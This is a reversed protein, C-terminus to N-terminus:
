AANPKSGFTHHTRLWDWTELVTDDLTQTAVFGLEREAKVISYHKQRWMLNLVGASLRPRAIWKEILPAFRALVFAAVQLLWRSVKLRPPAVGMTRAMTQLLTQYSVNASALIYREGGRGRAMAVQLGHVLDARSLVAIGGPPVFPMDGRFVDLFVKGWGHDRDCYPAIVAGPCVTVVCLGLRGYKRVVAEAAYKSHMYSFPIERGNYPMTEDAIGDPYGIAAISSVYVVRKVDARLAAALLNETVQVNVQMMRARDTEYPVALGAAHYLLTVGQMANAVSREDLLDGIRWDISSAVDTLAEGSDDPLRLAAVPLDAKLLTRVLNAGLCGTAGTVLIM